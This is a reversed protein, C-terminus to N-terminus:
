YGATERKVSKSKQINYDQIEINNSKLVISIKGTTLEVEPADMDEDSVDRYNMLITGDTKIEAYITTHGSVPPDGGGSQEAIIFTKGIEGRHILTAFVWTGYHYPCAEYSQETLATLLYENQEDIKIRNLAYFDSYKTNGLDLGEKWEEYSGAAKLSDIEYFNELDYQIDLIDYQELHQIIKKVSSRTLTDHGKVQELFVSDIVFPLDAIDFRNEIDNLSSPFSSRVTVPTTIETQQDIDPSHRNQNNDSCATLLVAPAALICIIPKIQKM